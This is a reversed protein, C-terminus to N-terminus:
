KESCSKMKMKMKMKWVRVRITVCPPVCACRHTLRGRSKQTQFNIAQGCFNKYYENLIKDLSPGM